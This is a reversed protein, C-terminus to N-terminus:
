AVRLIFERSGRVPTGRVRRSWAAWLERGRQWRPEDPLQPDPANALAAVFFRWGLALQDAFAFAAAPDAALVELANVLAPGRGARTVVAAVARVLARAHAAALGLRVHLRAGLADVLPRRDADALYRLPPLPPITGSALRTSAMAQGIPGDLSADIRRMVEAVRGVAHGIAFATLTEILRDLRHCSCEVEDAHPEALTATLERLATQHRSFISDIYRDIAEHSM